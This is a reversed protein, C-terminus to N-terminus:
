HHIQKVFMMEYSTLQRVLTTHTVQPNNHHKWWSNPSENQRCGNVASSGNTLLHRLALYIWISEYSSVLENADQNALIHTSKWCSNM